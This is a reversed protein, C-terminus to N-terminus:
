MPQRFENRPISEPAGYMNLFVLEFQLLSQVAGRIIGLLMLFIKLKM